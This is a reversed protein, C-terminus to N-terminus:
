RGPPKANPDPERSANLGETMELAVGFVILFIGLFCGAITWSWLALAATVIVAGGVQLGGARTM